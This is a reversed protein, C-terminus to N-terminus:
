RGREGNKVRTTGMNKNLSEKKSLVYDKTEKPFSISLNMFQEKDAINLARKILKARENPHIKQIDYKVNALMKNATTNNKELSYSNFFLPYALYIENLDELDTNEILHIVIQNFEGLEPELEKAKKYSLKNLDVMNIEDKNPIYSEEIKISLESVDENSVTKMITMNDKLVVDIRSVIEEIVTNSNKYDEKNVTITITDSGELLNSILGYEKIKSNVSNQYFLKRFEYALSPSVQDEINKISKNM